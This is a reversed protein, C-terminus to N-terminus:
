AGRQAEERILTECYALPDNANRRATRRICEDLISDSIPNIALVAVLRDLTAPTASWGFYKLWCDRTWERRNTTILYKEEDEEKESEPNPNPNPNSLIVPANAKLQNCNSEITKLQGCGAPPAPFKSKKNRITQHKEWNPFCLYQGGDAEYLVICGHDSLAQLGESIRKQTVKEMRLPFCRGQIIAPRADGRGYDDVYTILHAWLRFQFDSLSSVKESTCISEKILRNPM